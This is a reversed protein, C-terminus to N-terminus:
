TPSTEQAEAAQVTTTTGSVTCGYCFWIDAPDPTEEAEEADRGAIQIGAEAGVVPAAAVHSLVTFLATFAVLSSKM